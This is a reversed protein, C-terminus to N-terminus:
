AEGEMGRKCSRNNHQLMAAHDSFSFTVEHSGGQIATRSAQDPCTMLFFGPGILFNIRSIGEIGLYRGYQESRHRPM